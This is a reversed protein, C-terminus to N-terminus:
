DNEADIQAELLSEQGNFITAVVRSVAARHYQM